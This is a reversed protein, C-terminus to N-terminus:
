QAFAHGMLPSSSPKILIDDREARVATNFRPLDSCSPIAPNCWDRLGRNKPTMDSDAAASVCAM